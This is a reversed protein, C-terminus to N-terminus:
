EGGFPDAGWREYDELEGDRIRALEAPDNTGYREAETVWDPDAGDTTPYVILGPAGYYDALWQRAAAVEAADTLPSANNPRDPGGPFYSAPSV